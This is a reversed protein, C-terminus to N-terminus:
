PQAQISQFNQFSGTVGYYSMTLGASPQQNDGIHSGQTQSAQTTLIGILMCVCARVNIFMYTHMLTHACMTDQVCHTHGHVCHTYSCAFTSVEHHIRHTYMYVSTYFMYLYTDLADFVYVCQTYEYACECVEYFVYMSYTHMCTCVSCLACQTYIYMHTCVAKLVCMSYVHVYTYMVYFVSAMSYIHVLYVSQVTMWTTCMCTYVTYCYVHSIYVCTCSCTRQM